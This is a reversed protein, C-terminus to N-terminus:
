ETYLRLGCNTCDRPSVIEKKVFKRIGEGRLSRDGCNKQSPNKKLDIVFLCFYKVTM